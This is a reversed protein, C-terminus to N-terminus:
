TLTPELLGTAQVYQWPRTEARSMPALLTGDVLKLYGLKQATDSNYIDIQKGVRLREYAETIYSRMRFLNKDSAFSSAAIAFSIEMIQPSVETITLATPGILDTDPLEHINAHAEWDIFEIPIDTYQSRMDAILVNSFNVLSGWVSPIIKM